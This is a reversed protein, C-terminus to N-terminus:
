GSALSRGDPSFAISWIGAGDIRSQIEGGPVTWLLIQGDFGSSAVLKGDPSFAVSWVRDKHGVLEAIPKGDPVSWIRVNKDDSASAIYSGDPSFVARHVTASHGKLKVLPEAAEGAALTLVAAFFASLSERCLMAPKDHCRVGFHSDSRFAPPMM